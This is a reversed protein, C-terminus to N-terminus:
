IQLRHLLLSSVHESFILFFSASTYICFIALLSQFMRSLSDLGAHDPENTDTTITPAKELANIANQLEGVLADVEEQTMESSPFHLYLRLIEKNQVAQM